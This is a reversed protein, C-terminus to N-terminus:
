ISGRLARERLKEARRKGEDTLAELIKRYVEVHEVVIDAFSITEEVTGNWSITVNEGFAAITSGDSPSWTEALIGAACLMLEMKFIYDDHFVLMLRRLEPDENHMRLDCQSGNFRGLIASTRPPDVEFVLRKTGFNWLFKHITNDETVSIQTSSTPIGLLNLIKAVTSADAVGFSFLAFKSPGGRPHARPINPPPARPDFSALIRKAPPKTDRFFFHSPPNPQETRWTVDFNPEPKWSIVLPNRTPWDPIDPSDTRWTEGISPPLLPDKEPSGPETKVRKKSIEEDKQRNKASRKVLSNTKAVVKEHFEITMSILEVLIQQRGDGDGEAEEKEEPARAAKDALSKLIRVLSHINNVVLESELRDTLWSPHRSPSTMVPISVNKSQYSRSRKRISRRELDAVREFERRGEESMRSLVTERITTMEFVLDKFTTIEEIEGGTTIKLTEGFVDVTCRPHIESYVTALCLMAEEKLSNVGHNLLLCKGLEPRKSHKKLDCQDGDFLKLLAFATRQDVKFVIQETHCKWFQHDTNELYMQVQGYSMYVGIAELIDAPLPFKEFGFLVFKAAPLSLPINSGSGFLPTFSQPTPLRVSSGVSGFNTFSEMSHSNSDSSLRRRRDEQTLRSASDSQEAPIFVEADGSYYDEEVDEIKFRKVPTRIEKMFSSTKAVVEAHFKITMSMVDVMLKHRDVDSEYDDPASAAKDAVCELIKILSRVNGVAIGNEMRDTIWSPQQDAGSGSTM